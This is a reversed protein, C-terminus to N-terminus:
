LSGILVETFSICLYSHRSVSVERMDLPSLVRRYRNKTSRGHHVRVVQRNEDVYAHIFWRERFREQPTLDNAVRSFGFLTYHEAPECFSTHVDQSCTFTLWFSLCFHKSCASSWWEGHARSTARIWRRTPWFCRPKPMWFPRKLGEQMEPFYLVM